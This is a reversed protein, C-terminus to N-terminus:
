FDAFDDDDLPIVQDNSEKPPAITKKPHPAPNLNRPPPPTHHQQPPAPRRPAAGSSASHSRNNESELGVLTALERIFRTMQETQAFLEESASATEEANAAGRQTSKDMEAVARNIQGIGQSQENTAAAIEGVLTGVKDSSDAVKSFTDSTSTVLESGKYINKVTGEILDATNKAAEAARMALGRVEDAVVAFGAGAEGARAAEVAANLALLNTQFAIEDITKIIKSTEESSKSTADMSDRLDTMSDNAEVVTKNSEKMLSDAQKANDANLSIMSSMEELSASTEETSAAQESSGEALSQSISSLQGSASSIQGIGGTLGSVIMSIPKILFLKICIILSVLLIIDIVLGRVIINILTGTLRQNMYNKTLFIDVMGLRENGKLIPKEYKIVDGSVNGDFNSVNDPGRRIKSALAKDDEDKVIIAYIEKQGFESLVFEEIQKDDLNDIPGILSNALRKVSIGGLTDLSEKIDSQNNVYEYIGSLALLVTTIIVVIIGLKVQINKQVGLKEWIGKGM